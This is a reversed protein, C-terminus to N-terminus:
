SQQEKFNLIRTALDGGASRTLAASLKTDLTLFKGPDQLKKELEERAREQDYVENLWLWAEDPRDSCSKVEDRVHNKWTRYSEPAPMNNLKILEAEKTKPKDKEERQTLAKVLEILESPGMVQQQKTVSKPSDNPPTKIAETPTFFVSQTPLQPQDNGVTPKQQSSGGKLLEDLKAKAEQALVAPTKLEQIPEDSGKAAQADSARPTAINFHPVSATAAPEANQVSAKPVSAHQAKAVHKLQEQLDDIQDQLSLNQAAAENIKEAMEKKYNDFETKLSIFRAQDIAAQDEYQKKTAAIANKAHEVTQAYSAEFESTIRQREEAIKQDHKTNAEVKFDEVRKDHSAQAQNLRVELEDGRKREENVAGIAKSEVDQLRQEYEQEQMVLRSSWESRISDVVGHMIQLHRQEAERMVQLTNGSTIQSLNNQIFTFYAVVPQFMTEDDMPESNGGAVNPVAVASPGSGPVALPHDTPTGM